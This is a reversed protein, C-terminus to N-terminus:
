PRSSPGTSRSSTCRCAACTPWRPTAPATTTSPSDRRRPRAAPRAGRGGAGPRGHDADRHGRAGAGVAAPRAGCCGGRGAHAARPRHPAPGVPQGRGHPRPGRGAVRGGRAARPGAGAPDAPAILRTGEVVPLFADPLLVGRQPHRWRVLAEFGVVRGTRLAVQPQHELFLEGRELARGCSPRWCCGSRRTARRRGPRVREGPRPRGQRQLARHRRAAAAPRRRLRADAVARRGREGGGGAARRRGRLAARLGDLLRQAAGTGAVRRAPRRGPRRVRRRRAACRHRVPACEARAPACVGCCTTASRTASRTTSRRSTTSTSCSSRSRRARQAAAEECARAARLRFLAGTRCAPSPTTCRRTGASPRWSRAATSPPSPCCCCRCRALSLQRRWSRSSRPSPSWCAPPAARSAVDERLHTLM